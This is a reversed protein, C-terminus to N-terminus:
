TCNGIIDEGDMSLTFRVFVQRPESRYFKFPSFFEVDFVEAVRWDPYFARVAEAMTEIGMVGPLVPTGNIEHDYLFPQEKPDFTGSVIMGKYLGADEVKQVM